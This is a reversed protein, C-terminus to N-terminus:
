NKKKDLFPVLNHALMFVNKFRSNTNRPYHSILMQFYKTKIAKKIGDKWLMLFRPWAKFIFM